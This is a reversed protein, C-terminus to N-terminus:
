FYIYDRSDSNYDCSMKTKNKKIDEIKEHKKKLYKCFIYFTEYQHREPSYFCEFFGLPSFTSNNYCYAEKQVFIKLIIRISKYLITCYFLFIFSKFINKKNKKNEEFIKEINKETGKDLLKYEKILNQIKEIKNSNKLNEILKQKEILDKNNVNLNSQNLLFMLTSKNSIYNKFNNDLSEKINSFKENLLNEKILTIKNQIQIYNLKSDEKKFFDFYFKRQKKYLDVEENDINFNNCNARLLNLLKYDKEFCDNIFKEDIFDNSKLSLFFILFLFYFNLM